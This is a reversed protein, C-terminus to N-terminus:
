IEMHRHGSYVAPSEHWITTSKDAYWNSISPIAIPSNSMHELSISAGRPLSAFEGWRDVAEAVSDKPRAMAKVKAAAM